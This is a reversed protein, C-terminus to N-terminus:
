RGCWLTRDWRTSGLSSKRWATGTRVTANGEGQIGACGSAKKVEYGIIQMQIERM